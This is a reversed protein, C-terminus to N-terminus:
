NVFDVKMQAILDYPLSFVHHLLKDEYNGGVILEILFSSTHDSIVLDKGVLAKLNKLFNEQQYILAIKYMMFAQEESM